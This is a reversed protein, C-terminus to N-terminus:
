EIENLPVFHIHTDETVVIICSIEKIFSIMMIKSEFHWLPEGVKCYFVEFGYVKGLEDAIALFDFGKNSKWCHWLHVDFDIKVTQIIEGNLSLVFLNNTTKNGQIKKAFCVIFGWGPTVILKVPNAQLDIVRIIEGKNLSYLILKGNNTGNIAIYYQSNLCSCTISNGYSQLSFLRDNFGNKYIDLVADNKSLGIYENSTTIGLLNPVIVSEMSAKSLDISLLQKSETNSLFITNTKFCCINNWEGSMEPSIDRFGKIEKITSSVVINKNEDNNLLKFNSRITTWRKVTVVDSDDLKSSGVTEIQSMHHSFPHSCSRELSISKRTPQKFMQGFDIFYIILTGLPDIETIKYQYNQLPELHAYVVSKGKEAQITYVSSFPSTSKENINKLPHKTKFLQPPIQGCHMLICENEAASLESSEDEWISDYMQPNFTNNAEIADKGRQKYGWILDIWNNIMGSCIDSELAKRMTYIFEYRSQHAWKPLIIDIVVGDSSEGFDFNNSNKLFEFDYYFEPILERYDNQHNIVCNFLNQISRFLRSPLDFRGNQIEIHLTTFPEIRILYSCIVLMCLPASDYLHSKNAQIKSIQEQLRTPNLAGVPKSLDRYVAPNSLDIEDSVYDSLVWPFIPYQSLDNFSRGSMINLHMLYEFNSIQNHVWQETISNRNFFRFFTTTQLLKLRPLDLTSINKIIPISRHNPFHLFFSEGNDTFLEMSNPLHNTTRFFVYILDDLQIKTLHNDSNLIEIRNSFLAFHASKQSTPTVIFCPVDVLSNTMDFQPHNEINADDNMIPSIELLQTPYLQENKKSEESLIESSTKISKFDRTNSAVRHDDFYWNRKLKMPCFALCFTQDRKFHSTNGLHTSWPAPDIALSRWLRIWYKSGLKHFQNVKEIETMITERNKTVLKDLELIASNAITRSSELMEQKILLFLQKRSTSIDSEKILDSKQLCNFANFSLQPEISTNLSYEYDILQFHHALLDIFPQSNNDDKSVNDSIVQDSKNNELKTDSPSNPLKPELSRRVGSFSGIYRRNKQNLNPKIEPTQTIKLTSLHDIVIHLNMHILFSCLILDFSLFQQIQYKQYVTICKEALDQDIWRGDHEFRLGFVPLENNFQSSQIKDKISMNKLFKKDQKDIIVPSPILGHRINLSGIGFRRQPTQTVPPLDIPMYVDEFCEDSISKSITDVKEFFPSDSFLHFLYDSSNEKRKRYLIFRRAMSFFSIIQQNSIEKTGELILDSICYLLDSKLTDSDENLFLGVVHIMNFLNQWSNFDCECLFYLFNYRVDEDAKQFCFVIAWFSWAVSNNFETSPQIHNNLVEDMIQLTICEHLSMWCLLQFLEHYGNQISNIVMQYLDISIRSTPLQDIFYSIQDHLSPQEILHSHYLDILMEMLVIVITNNRKSILVSVFSFFDINSIFSSLPSPELKIFSKIIKLLDIIQENENCTLCHSMLCRFDAESFTVLGIKICIRSLLQRCEVVNLEENRCRNECQVYEQEGNVVKYWYFIRMILVIKQFTSSLYNMMSPFLTRDWHKLIRLHNDADSHLWLEPDLLILSLFRLQLQCLSIGQIFSYFQLYLAYDIHNDNCTHFFHALIEVGKSEYFSLQAKQSHSLLNGLLEISLKEIPFSHQNKDTMDIQAFLPLVTQTKCYNIFIKTFNVEHQVIKSLIEYKINPTPMKEDLTLLRNSEDTTYFFIPQTPLNGICRPGMQYIKNLSDDDLPKFLGFTAMKSVYESQNSDSTVGAILCTIPGPQFTMMSYELYKLRNVNITPSMLFRDDIYEFTISVFTWQNSPLPSQVKGTSCFKPAKEKCFVTSSSVFTQLSNMKSDQIFLCSPKYDSHAKESLIWFVFTFGHEIDQHTLGTIEIAGDQRIMPISAFPDKSSSIVIKNMAQIYNQQFRDYNKGEFPSLLSLFNQVVSVCSVVSSIHHFISLLMDVIKEDETKKIVEIIYSDFQALHLQLTNFYSFGILSDIFNLIDSLKSDQLTVSLLGKVAKPHKIYVTPVISALSDGAILQIMKNILNQPINNLDFTHSISSSITDYQISQINKPSAVISFFQISQLLFNQCLTTNETKEFALILPSIFPEFLPTISRQHMFAENLTTLIDTALIVPRHQPISQFCITLIQLLMEVLLNPQENQDKSLFSLLNSLVFNRLPEEFIFSLYFSLFLHDYFLISLSGSSHFVASILLLLSTRAIEIPQTQDPQTYDLKQFHLSSIMLSKCFSTLNKQVFETSHFLGSQILRYIIEAFLLPEYIWKTIIDGILDLPCRLLTKIILSRISSIITYDDDINFVTSSPHFFPPSLLVDVDSHRIHQLFHNAFDFYIMGLDFLYQDENVTRLLMAISDLLLYILAKDNNSATVILTIKNSRDEDVLQNYPLREPFLIKQKLNVGNVFGPGDWFNLSVNVLPLPQNTIKNQYSNKVKIYPTSKSIIHWISSGFISFIETNTEHSLHQSLHSYLSLSPFELRSIPLMITRVIDEAAQHPFLTNMEESLIGIFTLITSLNNSSHIAINIIISIIDFACPPLTVTMLFYERFLNFCDQPHESFEVKFYLILTHFYASLVLIQISSNPVKIVKSFCQTLLSYFQTTNDIYVKILWSLTMQLVTSAILSYQTQIQDFQDILLCIYDIDFQLNFNHKILVNYYESGSQIENIIAKIERSDYQQFPTLQILTGIGGPLEGQSPDYNIKLRLISICLDEPSFISLETLNNHLFHLSDFIQISAYM